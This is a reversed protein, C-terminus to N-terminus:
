YLEPTKKRQSTGERIEGNVRIKFFFGAATLGDNNIFQTAWKRFIRSPVYSTKHSVQDVNILGYMVECPACDYPAYATVELGYEELRINLYGRRNDIWRTALENRHMVSAWYVIAIIIAIMIATEM